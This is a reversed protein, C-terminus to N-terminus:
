HVRPIADILIKVDGSWVKKQQVLIAGIHELGVRPIHIFSTTRDYNVTAHRCADQIWTSRRLIDLNIIMWEEFAITDSRAWGYFYWQGNGRLIKSVETEAGSARWHRLTLDRQTVDSDRVRALIPVQQVTVVFDGIGQIDMDRNATDISARM